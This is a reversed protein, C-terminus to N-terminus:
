SFRRACPRKPTQAGSALITAVGKLASNRQLSRAPLDDLPLVASEPDAYRPEFGQRGALWKSDIVQTWAGHAIQVSRTGIGTCIRLRGPGVTIAFVNLPKLNNPKRIFDRIRAAM